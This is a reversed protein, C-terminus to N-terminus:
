TSRIATVPSLRSAARAPIFGALVGVGASVLMGILFINLNFRVPFDVGYTLLLSILVVILMGVLGGILCLIVAELLFEGLIISARAGVALKLGIYKTREKVTVFMINAIGFSGVLLSFGAIVIGVLNVMSFIQDLQEQVQSLRNISFNNREGPKVKRITRLKGEVEYALESVPMGAAAKVMLIPDYNLSRTDIVTSIASYPLIVGNDFDFGAMNQGTSAMVGVITFKRGMLTISQGLASSESSFLNAAVAGGIVTVFAGGNLEGPSLYRGEGIEVNQIRDFYEAVAVTGVGELEKDLHKVKQGQIQLSLTALAVGPLQQVEQVERMTMGPRNVYEWWKFTQGDEPAWPWRGLYLVDSGLTEVSDAINQKLSDLVTLVAIICFIGITIGLLSLTTRLKNARLEYLAQSISTGFIQALQQM